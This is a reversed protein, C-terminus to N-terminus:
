RRTGLRHRPLSCSWEPCAEVGLPILDARIEAGSDCDDLLLLDVGHDAFEKVADPGSHFRTFDGYFEDGYDKGKLWALIM